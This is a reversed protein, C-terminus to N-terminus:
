LKLVHPLGVGLLFLLFLLFFLLLLLIFNFTM